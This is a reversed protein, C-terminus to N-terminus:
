AAQSPWPQKPTAALRVIKGGERVAEAQYEGYEAAYKRGETLQYVAEFPQDASGTRTLLGLEVLDTLFKGDKTRRSMDLRLHTGPLTSKPARALARLVKWDAHTIQNLV